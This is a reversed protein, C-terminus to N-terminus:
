SSLSISYIYLFFCHILDVLFLKHILMDGVILKIVELSVIIMLWEGLFEGFLLKLSSRVKDLWLCWSISFLYSVRGRSVQGHQNGPFGLSVNHKDHM